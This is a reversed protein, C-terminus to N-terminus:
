HEIEHDTTADDDISGTCGAEPGIHTNTITADNDDAIDVFRRSAGDIGIAADDGGPEDVQVGM